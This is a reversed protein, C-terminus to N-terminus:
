FIIDIAAYIWSLMIIIICVLAIIICAKCLFSLMPRKNDAYADTGAVMCRAERTLALTGALLSKLAAEDVGAGTADIRELYM